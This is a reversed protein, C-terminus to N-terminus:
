SLLDLQQASAAGNNKAKNKDQFIKHAEDWAQLFQQSSAVSRDDQVVDVEPFEMMPRRWWVFLGQMPVAKYLTIQIYRTTPDFHRRVITWDVDEDEQALHVPHPLDGELIIRSTDTSSLSSSLKTDVKAVCKLRPKISGSSVASCRDAWSVIGSVTVTSQNGKMDEDTQLEVRLSVSYRDQSWYLRRRRSGKDDNADDDDTISPPRVLVLGGKEIWTENDVQQSSSLQVASSSQSPPTPAVRPLATPISSVAAAATPAAPDSETSASAEVATTVGNVSPLGAGAGSAGGGGFTVRSPADLRTVRPISRGGDGDDGDDADEEDSSYDDLHDWRSYDIPM